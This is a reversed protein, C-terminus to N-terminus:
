LVELVRALAANITELETKGLKKGLTNAWTAQATEIQELVLLGKKSLRLLQARKHEPNEEYKALGELVLIDATRQVSQRALGMIRAIAAVSLAQNDICGMVQWRASSQGAPKTLTNGAELLAGNLKFINLVLETFATGVKTHAM